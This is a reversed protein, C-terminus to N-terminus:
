AEIYENVWFPCVSCPDIEHITEFSEHPGRGCWSGSPRYRKQGKLPIQLPYTSCATGVYDSLVLGFWVTHCQGWHCRPSAILSRICGVWSFNEPIGFKWVGWALCAWAVVEVVCTSIGVGYASSIFPCM